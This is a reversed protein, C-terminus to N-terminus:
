ELRKLMNVAIAKMAAAKKGKMHPEKLESHCNAVTFNWGHEPDGYGCEEKAKCCLVLTPKEFGQILKCCFPDIDIVINMPLNETSILVEVLDNSYISDSLLEEFTKTESVVNESILARDNITFSVPSFYGANVCKQHCVLLTRQQGNANDSDVM